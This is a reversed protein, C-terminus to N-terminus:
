EETDNAAAVPEAKKKQITPKAAAVTIVGASELRACIAKLEPTAPVFPGAALEFDVKGFGALHMEGTLDAPVDYTTVTNM